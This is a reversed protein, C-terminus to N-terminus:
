KETGAIGRVIEVIQPASAESADAGYGTTQPTFITHTTQLLVANKTQADNTSQVFAEFTSLANHRHKNVIYNHRHARYMKGSWIVASFLVSFALLKAVALQTILGPGFGALDKAFYLVSWIAVVAALFTLLALIVTARLWRDAARDHEEAAAAFIQAHRTVGTEQATQKLKEALERSASLIAQLEAERDRSQEQIRNLTISAEREVQVLNPGAPSGSAILPALGEFQSEHISQIEKILEDRAAFPEKTQTPDFGKVASLRNWCHILTQRLAQLKRLPFLDPDIQGVVETVFRILRQFHPVGETFALPGLDDRRLESIQLESFSKLLRRVDAVADARGSEEM